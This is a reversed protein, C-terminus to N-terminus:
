VATYSNLFNYASNHQTAVCCLEAGAATELAPIFTEMRHRPTPWLGSRLDLVEFLAFNFNM